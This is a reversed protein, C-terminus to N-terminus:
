SSCCRFGLSSSVYSPAGDLYACFPGAKAGRVWYGGRVVAKIATTNAPFYVADFGYKTTLGTTSTAWGTGNYYYYNAVGGTANTLPNVVIDATNNTWEWVNGVMDYVGEASVCKNVGSVYYSTNCAHNSANGASITCYVGSGTNCFNPTAALDTPLYYFSGNINAAALWEDDTCLHKGANACMQRAQKQSVGVFPAVGVKSYAIATTGTTSDVGGLTGITPQCKASCYGALSYNGCNNGVDECGPTSAEYKDICFGGLKNIYAMGSPCTIRSYTWSLNNLSVNSGANFVQSTYTGNTFTLNIQIAGATSNYFTSNHTGASFSTAGNDILLTAVVFSIVLIIGTIYLFLKGFLNYKSSCFGLSKSPCLFSNKETNNGGLVRGWLGTKDKM